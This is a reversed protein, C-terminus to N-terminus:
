IGDESLEELTKKLKRSLGKPIRVNVKVLHDGRGRGRLRLVGKEKLRFVTGPQTGEPIKLEVNGDVTEVEIKAGIAAQTFKIQAESYIDYGERRFRSDPKVRIKIYLDGSPAGKEGAEGQGAFRISEGNDIGAPIKITISPDNNYVGSGRCKSCKQSPIKGEGQCNHCITEMQVTGFITRQNKIIRGSGNCVPCAEIKAGPEAGSGQCKDCAVNKRIRIDKEVGFVADQFNIEIETEIDRGRKARRGGGGSRRGFGFM